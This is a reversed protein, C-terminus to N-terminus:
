SELTEVREALEQIAKILMPIMMTTSLTKLDDVEKGSVEANRTKVYQSAVAQVEDAVLGYRVEKDDSAGEAMGNYKYTVPRLQNVISLGDNLAVVEKKLRSDSLSHITGDNTYTDGVEDIRFTEVAAYSGGGTSQGTLIKLGGTYGNGTFSILKVLDYYYGAGATAHQKRFM